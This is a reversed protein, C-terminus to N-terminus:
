DGGGAVQVSLWAAATWHKTTLALKSTRRKVDISESARNADVRPDNRDELEQGRLARKGSESDSGGFNLDHQEETGSDSDRVGSNSEARGNKRPVRTTLGLIEDDNSRSNWIPTAVTGTAM